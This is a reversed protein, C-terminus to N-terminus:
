GQQNFPNAGQNPATQQGNTVSQLVAEPNNGLVTYFPEQPPVDMSSANEGGVSGQTALLQALKEKIDLMTKEATARNMAGRSLDAQAQALIKEIELRAKQEEVLQAQQQKQANAERQQKMEEPLDEDAIMGEPALMRFRRVLEESKPLDMMEIILDWYMMAYQPAANIFTLMVEVAEARKTVSSSGTTFTLGYKGVKLDTLENNPDNITALMEKDDRGIVTIIRNTDYIVPILENINKACREDATRLRDHYIYTGVDTQRVRAQIAKGSVENSEVGMSADQINSVDKIDQAAAQSEQLLAPDLSPPQLEEPKITDNNYILLNDDSQSAARWIGELGQVSEKMAIFKNRPMSVLREALISRWYNHLRQPDKLNRVLGWRHTEGDIRIEWAPVRYIPISSMPYDFDGELKESGSCISLRAVINPVERTYLSGDSRVQIAARIDEIDIDTIDEIRGDKLLAITKTGATVMRWYRVTRITDTQYWNSVAHNDTGFSDETKADPYKEKFEDISYEKIVFGWNADGGCPRFSMPDMVVLNPDSIAELKIEQDFVDDSTYDINLTFYGIGGAVQYKLAEDRAFKADSNKYISRIIDERLQAVEKVGGHDPYVKIETENMLRTNVVQAVYAPLRNVTLCPKKSKERRAKVNPDWQDGVVFKLDDKFAEMNKSDYEVGSAFRKRMESFFDESVKAMKTVGDM